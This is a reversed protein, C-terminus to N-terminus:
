GAHTVREPVGALRLIELETEATRRGIAALEHNNTHGDLHARAQMMTIEAWRINQLVEWVAVRERNVAFGSAREYASLWIERSAIGGAELETKGFRWVRTCLWALDEEPEGIHVGEWDLICTLGQEDYLMNGIRFDGHVLTHERKPQDLSAIQRDIWRFAWEIAPHPNLVQLRYADEVVRREYRLPDEGAAPARMGPAAAVDEATVRHILELNGALQEIINARTASFKPNGILQRPNTDGPARAMVLYDEGSECEGVAIPQPCFIGRAFTVRLVEFERRTKDHDVRGAPSVRVVLEKIAGDITADVAWSDHMAGGALISPEGIQAAPGLCERVATVAVHGTGTTESTM